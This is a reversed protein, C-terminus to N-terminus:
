LDVEEGGIRLRNHIKQGVALVVIAQDERDIDYFVRFDGVRLEWPAIPNDELPKRHATPQDPQHALQDAIADVVIRQDRKRLVRLHDHADPSFEITFAMVGERERDPADGAGIVGGPVWRRLNASSEGTRLREVDVFADPVPRADFTGSGKKVRQHEVV